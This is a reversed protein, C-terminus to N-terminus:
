RPDPWAMSPGRSAWAGRWTSGRPTSPSTPTWPWVKLCITSPRPHAFKSDGGGPIRLVITADLDQLWGIDWTTLNDFFGEGNMGIRPRAREVAPVARDTLAGATTPSAPVGPDSVCASVLAPLLLTRASLSMM